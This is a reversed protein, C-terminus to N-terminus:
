LLNIFMGDAEGVKINMGSLLTIFRMIFQSGTLEYLSPAYWEPPLQRKTIPRKWDNKVKRWVKAM